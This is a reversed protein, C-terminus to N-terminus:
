EDSEKKDAGLIKGISYQESIDKLRGSKYYSLVGTPSYVYHDYLHINHISCIMQMQATTRDDELSPIPDGEVHNHVMVIGKPRFEQIQAVLDSPDAGVRFREDCRFRARYIIKDGNGLFYLDLVESTEAFYERCIFEDFFNPDFVAPLRSKEYLLDYRKYIKGITAIQAAVSKGVGDVKELETTDANFVGYLSGFATLLNHATANTDKRPICSFLLIELLEYDELSESDLKAILRQRHGDHAAM